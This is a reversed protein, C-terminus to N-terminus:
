LISCQRRSFGDAYLGISSSWEVLLGGVLSSLLGDVIILHSGENEASYCQLYQLIKIYTSHNLVLQLQM